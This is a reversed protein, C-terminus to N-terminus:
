SRDFMCEKDLNLYEWFKRYQERAKERDSYAKVSRTILEGPTINREAAIKVVLEDFSDVGFLSQFDTKNLLDYM